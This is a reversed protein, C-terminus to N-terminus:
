INFMYIISDYIKLHNIRRNCTRCPERHTFMSSDRGFFLKAKGGGMEM